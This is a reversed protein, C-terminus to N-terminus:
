VPVELESIMPIAGMEPSIETELLLPGIERVSILASTRVAEVELEVLWSCFATRERETERALLLPETSIRWASAGAM